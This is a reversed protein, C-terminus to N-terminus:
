SARGGNRDLFRCWVVAASVAVILGVFAPAIALVALTVIAAAIAVILMLTLAAGQM